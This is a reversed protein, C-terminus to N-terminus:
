RTVSWSGVKDFGTSLGADDTIRLFQKYNNMVATAKFAVAWTIQVSPGDPGSGQVRTQALYLDAFRSSLVVNAGPAAESWTQLDPDYFRILNNNEDFQVWLALPIGNGNGDSRALKFDIFSIDHWGDPDSCTTTFTQQQGTIGSGTAPDNVGSNPPSNAGDWDGSLPVDGAAGFPFGPINSDTFNDSLFFQFAGGINLLVGLTDVSDGNWDGVVPLDGGTGFCHNIDAPGASNANRLIFFCNNRIGITDVGDGNWDGALPSDGAQGFNFDFAVPASGTNSNALLWRGDRYVGITDVGDGNWDGVVPKDTPQGGAISAGIFAFSQTPQGNPGPVIIPISLFFAGNRYIGAKDKGDGTWDGALPIDVASTGIFPRLDYVIDAAGSTNSNRLLFLGPNPRFVGITDPFTSGIKVAFGDEAGGPSTQFAGPTTSLLIGVFGTLYVNGKRDVAIARGEANIGGLLTSYLLTPQFAESPAAEIKALFMRSFQEFPFANVQPFTSGANTTGTVYANGGSDLAIGRGQEGGGASGGLFSSYILASGAANLKAVFADQVGGLSSDFANRLPFTAAGSETVGTIFANGSAPEVAIARGAEFQDGGFYTLYILSSAGSVAPNIRAVFADRVGRNTSQFPSSNPTSKVSLDPSETEGVVYANGSSDLAIGEGFDEGNGGLFSSYLLSANGSLSPDLKAIFGDNGPRRTTQFGNRMPFDNSFTDGTVYTKGASDVAVARGVDGGGGRLFTSYTLSTGIDSLISVFTHAFQAAGATTQFANATVPFNNTGPQTSGTSGTIVAKGDSTVAIGLGTDSLRGGIYTAYIIDTGTANFKVVFADTLDPNAGGPNLQSQFPTRLPLNTSKTNGTIFANGSRDAAIGFGFDAGNGGYYTSYVLLPDIVLPKSRDYEGFEFSVENKGQLLYRGAIVQRGGNVEQYISPAHQIVEGRNTTLVLEGAQNLTVQEAGYFSLRIQEPHAGPSVVFDYELERQSTGYYVLDIGEYIQSYRVRSFRPVNTRWEKPNNGILYNSKGQLEGEGTIRAQRAGLLKLRLMTSQLDPSKSKENESASVEANLSLVAESATLFLTFGPGRSLFSVRSNTQGQNREFSLPLKGYAERVRMNTQEDSKSKEKGPASAAVDRNWAAVGPSKALLHPNFAMLLGTLALLASYQRTTKLITPRM